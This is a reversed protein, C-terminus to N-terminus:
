FCNVTLGNIFIVLDARRSNKGIVKVEDAVVFKNKQPEHYNIPYMHRAQEKGDKDKWSISVGQTMKRHFDRNRHDLDMGSHQTFAAMAENIVTAPVDPYNQQLFSRLDEEVVVKKLDRNLSNGEQHTYGLEQLCEIAANQVTSEIMQTM